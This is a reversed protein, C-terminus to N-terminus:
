STITQARQLRKSVLDIVAGYVADREGTTLGLADFIINDLERRDDEGLNLAGANEMVERAADANLVAPDIVPLRAVEYTQIKMLGEGFNARGSVNAFLQM